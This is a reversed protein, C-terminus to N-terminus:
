EPPFFEIPLTISAEIPRGKVIRPLFRWQGISALAADGFAPDTTSEIVPNTIAGNTMIRARVNVTGKTKTKAFQSPYEPPPGMFPEPPGDARGKIRAAIMKDLVAERFEPAHMSHLVEMGDVFLHLRYNGDGLPIGTPAVVNVYKLQNPRVTGIEHIVHRHTDDELHLDLVLFVNELEYSSEFRAIFEFQHNFSTGESTHRAVTAKPGRVAIFVPLYEDVKHLGIKRIPVSIRKGGEEIFVRDRSVARVVHSKKKHETVVVHQGLAPAAVAAFAVLPALLRLQIFLSQM